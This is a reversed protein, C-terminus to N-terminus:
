AVRGVEVKTTAFLKEGSKVQEYLNDSQAFFPQGPGRSLLYDNLDLDALLDGVTTAPQIEVDKINGTGAIVVSLRKM